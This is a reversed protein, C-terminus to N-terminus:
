DRLIPLTYTAYREPKTDTGVNMGCTPCVTIVGFKAEIVKEDDGWVPLKEMYHGEHMKDSRYSRLFECDCAPCKFRYYLDDRASRILITDPTDAM